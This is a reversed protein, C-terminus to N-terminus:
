SPARNCPSCINQPLLHPICMRFAYHGRDSILSYLERIFYFIGRHVKTAKDRIVTLEFIPGFELFIPRLSDEDM